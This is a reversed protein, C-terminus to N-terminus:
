SGLFKINPLIIEKVSLQSTDCHIGLTESYNMLGTNWGSTPSKEHRGIKSEVSPLQTRLDGDRRSDRCVPVQEPVQSRLRSYTTGLSTVISFQRTPSSPLPLKAVNRRNAKITFRSFNMM